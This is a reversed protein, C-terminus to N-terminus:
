EDLEESYHPGQIFVIKETAPDFYLFYNRYSEDSEGVNYAVLQYEKPENSPPLEREGLGLYEISEQIVPISRKECFDLAKKELREELTM